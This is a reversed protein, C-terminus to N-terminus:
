GYTKQKNQKEKKLFEKVLKLYAQAGSSNIDYALIPKGFSPAEAIRINRPIVTYFVKDLFHKRVEKVVQSSLRNRKDYMTLVIGKIALERNLNRRVITITKLLHSLGELSYFECQMPIMVSNSAVLANVTLLGLSPPCDIFVYDFKLTLNELINKLVYERRKFDKLDLEAASLDVITPIIQLNKIKTKQIAKEIAYNGILMGYSNFDRSDIGIGTSANGQPDLDLILVKRGTIALASALNVCTTTKGVGGKQNVISIIEM